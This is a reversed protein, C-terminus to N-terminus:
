RVVAYVAPSWTGRHSSDGLYRLRFGTWERVSRFLRIEAGIGGLASFRRLALMHWGRSATRVWVEALKGALHDDGTRFRLTVAAAGSASRQVVITGTRFGRGGAVVGSAIAAVISVPERTPGPSTSPSPGPSTSPSPSASEGPTPSASGSPGPSDTALVAAPGPAAGAPTAGPLGVLIVIALAVIAAPALRM